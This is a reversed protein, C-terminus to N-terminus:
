RGTLIGEMVKGDVDKLELGLLRAMTPALDLNSATDLKVGPKIGRGSAIFIARLEPDTNVYGHAGLSGETTDVVLQDGVAGGFSYGDKAVLFLPGMQDSKDPTPLGYSAYDAPEVIKELGELGALAERARALLKGDPDPVTLYFLATGGEPVVYAQAKSIKGGAAEILGAKLLAANPLMQRKVTKFGHDSVVFFTTKATLGADDVAKVIQAVQSDLHAMAATAALTDPGYRHQTSDLTLLHFMLLNPRHKAIIDVGAATWAYDRVVINKKKFSEVDGQTLTGASVLEQEIPGKPDPLERFEWTITPANWIAVWDVQATTLGKGHAVDYLTPFHVMENRDRWQEVRPPMGPEHILLGNFIVGHKAPAVGTIMSTHNAWTVTPNVPRMGETATAGQAALRRLTPLPVSPDALARATFGDLSIIVLHNSTDPGQAAQAVLLLSASVAFLLALLCARFPKIRMGSLM